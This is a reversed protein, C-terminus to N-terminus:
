DGRSLWNQNLRVTPQHLHTPVTESLFSCSVFNLSKLINWVFCLIDFKSLFLNTSSNSIISLVISPFSSYSKRFTHHNISVCNEPFMIVFCFPHHYIMSSITTTLNTQHTFSSTYSKQFHHNRFILPFSSCCLLSSCSILSHVTM